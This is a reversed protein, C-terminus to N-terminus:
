PKQHDNSEAGASKRHAVLGRRALPLAKKEPTRAVADPGVQAAFVPVAYYTESTGIM